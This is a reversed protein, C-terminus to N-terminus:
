STFTTAAIDALFAATHPGCHGESAAKELQAFDDPTDIDLAITPLTLSAVTCGRRVCEDLHRAHSHVGFQYDFDQPREVLLMNTGGDSSRALAVRQSGALARWSRVVQRIADATLLPLDAHVILLATAGGASAEMAVGAIGRNLGPAAAVRADDYWGLGRHAAFDHVSPSDSLVLLREAVHSECLAALVDDAM